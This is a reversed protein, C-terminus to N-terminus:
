EFGGVARCCGSHREGLVVGGEVEWEAVGGGGAGGDVERGVETSSDEGEVAGM